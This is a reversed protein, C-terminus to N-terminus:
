PNSWGKEKAEESLKLWEKRRKEEEAKKKKRRTEWGKQAAKKRNKTKKLKKVEKILRANYEEDTEPRQGSVLVGIEETYGYSDSSVEFYIKPDILNKYKDIQKLFSKLDYSRHPSFYPVYCPNECYVYSQSFIEKKGFQAELKQIEEESVGSRKVANIYRLRHEPNGPDKAIHRLLMTLENDM